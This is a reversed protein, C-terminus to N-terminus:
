APVPGAALINEQETAWKMEPIEIEVRQNPPTDPANKGLQGQHIEQLAPGGRVVRSGEQGGGPRGPEGEGLELLAIEFPGGAGGGPHHVVGPGQPEGGTVSEDPLQAGPVQLGQDVVPGGRGPSGAPRM